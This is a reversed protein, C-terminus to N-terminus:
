LTSGELIGLLLESHKVNYTGAGSTGSSADGGNGGNCSAINIAEPTNCSASGGPANGGAGSYTQGNSSGAAASGSYADGGLGGNCSRVNLLSGFEGDGNCKSSGGPANGGAGSYAEHPVPVALVVNKAILIALLLSLTVFSSPM